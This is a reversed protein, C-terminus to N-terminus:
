FQFYLFESVKQLSLAAYAAASGAVVPIWWSRGKQRDFLGVLQQSNPFILVPVLFLLLGALADEPHSFIVSRVFRVGWDRLFPLVSEYNPHLQVGNLGAMTQILAVADSLTRARFFVWAIVVALFTVFWSLAAPLAIHLRRWLHNIVLFVGHLGGWLIYTWGAGHWLGGILMTILINLARRVEGHRNGGLPIYLYNKFLFALSMHWRHWFDIISTAKYPSNFNLPLRVNFMLGLGIAMDSYGSFDFYLQLSFALVGVWADLFGAEMVHDFVPAVRGSLYDAIIVKKFLGIGFLMFGWAMNQHSYIFTRLKHFQPIIDKHYLIPGAILHPFFTVFLMYTLFNYRGITEGRCADVLYALQTLTFFSIGLPLTINGLSWSSDFLTNAVGLGFTAYKYFGLVGVNGVVGALLLGNAIPKKDRYWEIRRGLHYNFVVSGLLLPVYAVNWYAYFLISVFVLWAITVRTLRLKALGYFGILALPLFVFLFTYSNFLM